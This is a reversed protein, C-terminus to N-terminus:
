ELGRLIGDVTKSLKSHTTPTSTNTVIFIGTQLEPILTMWSSMGFAGGNQFIIDPQDGNKRIQWFFGTDFDGYKGGWLEQHATSIIPNEANLHYAMYQIMDPLNSILGGAASMEKEAFFPMKIKDGNQGEALKSKDVQSLKIFTNNMELPDLIRKKLLEAYPLQYVEELVYGLLNAGANSYGFKHGPLTDLKVQHLEEFFQAKSFDKQLENMEYPLTDFNPNDFLGKKDPFMHPLGSQHTLIHRITIPHNEYALNPFNGPLYIRVDDDLSLKKEVIAQALLTGTFTKTLSAIEYLTETDPSKGNLLNGRHVTYVKGKNILGLSVADIEPNLLLSDCYRTLHPMVPDEVQLGPM